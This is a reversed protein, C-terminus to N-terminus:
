PGPELEVRPVVGQPTLPRSDVLTFPAHVGEIAKVGWVYESNDEFVTTDELHFALDILDPGSLDEILVFTAILPTHIKRRAQCLWVHNSFDVAAEVPFPATLHIVLEDGIPGTVEGRAYEWSM